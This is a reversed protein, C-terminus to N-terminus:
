CCKQEPQCVGGNIRNYSCMVTAPKGEKVAIEFPSSIFKGCRASM